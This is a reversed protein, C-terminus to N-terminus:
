FNHKMGIGVQTDEVNDDDLFEAILQTNSGVKRQYGIFATNRDTDGIGVYFVNKGTEYNATYGIHVDNNGSADDDEYKNARIGVDVPGIKGAIGLIINGGRDTITTVASAGTGTTTTENDSETEYGLSVGVPGIDGKVGFALSDENDIASGSGVDPSYSAAYTISGSTKLYTINNQDGAQCGGSDHSLYEDPAVWGIDVADCGNDTDGLRITGFEGRVGVFMDDSNLQGALIVEGSDIDGGDVSAVSDVTAGAVNVEFHGFYTLSGVKEHADFTVESGNGGFSTEGNGQDFYGISVDGGVKFDAQAAFPAIAIALVKLKM